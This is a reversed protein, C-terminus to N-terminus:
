WVGYFVGASKYRHTGCEVDGETVTTRNKLGLTWALLRERITQWVADFALDTGGAAANKRAQRASATTDALV